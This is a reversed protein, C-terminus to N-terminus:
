HAEQSLEMGDIFKLKLELIKLYKKQQISESKSDERLGHDVIM